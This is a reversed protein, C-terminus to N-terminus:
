DEDPRGTAQDSSGSWRFHRSSSIQGRFSHIIEEFFGLLCVAMLTDDTLSEVPDELAKRTSSLAKAFKRRVKPMELDRIKLIFKTSLASSVAAVCLALPSDYKVSSYM